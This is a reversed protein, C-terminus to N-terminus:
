GRGRERGRQVRGPLGRVLRVGGRTSGRTRRRSRRRRPSMNQWFITHNVHGSFTSSFDRKAARIDEFEGAERMSEFEDLAENAGDVHSQHHEGHHLEMIREDIHSELADYAYSLESLQYRPQQANESDTEAETTAEDEPDHEETTAAATAGSGLLSVGATGGLTQLVSRRRLASDISEDSM